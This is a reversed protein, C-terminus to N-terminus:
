TTETERFSTAITTYESRQLNSIVCNILKTEIAQNNQAQFAPTTNKGNREVEVKKGLCCLRLAQRFERVRFAYVIANVFVNCYNLVNATCVLAM